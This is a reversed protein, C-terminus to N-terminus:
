EENSEKRENLWKNIVELHEPKINRNSLLKELDFCNEGPGLHIVPSGESHWIEIAKETPMGLIYMSPINEVTLPSVTSCGQKEDFNLALNQGLVTEAESSVGSVTSRKLDDLTPLGETKPMADGPVYDAPYGKRTEQNIIWEQKIAKSARRSVAAKSIGLYDKLKVATIREGEKRDANLKMVAEVLKRVENTIGSSSDIYMDNVLDRVTQYDELTAIIQGQSDVTRRHQRLLAVSKILSMLRAFDRLIRPVSVSKGMTQGLERAFPIMVKIPAKLQLYLQFSELSKDLPKTGETELKAQTELAAKIQEENDSIELTFMRTMLQAGLSRTSTTILVTPGPKDKESVTYDGTIPDRVTVVYHLHHDQLLNRIASAAPNDEGAPLSDAESFIVVRHQLDSNDYILARPSGAEITHYAEPPLLKLVQNVTYSKGASPPGILLLHVMMAGTRMELLRSTAALYTILVPKLDGGYGMDQIAGKVVELPDDAEIIPKAAEYAEALQVEKVRAQLEQGSEARAKLEELWGPISIGQIHAESIDKMGEPAPIYHLGPSSELVRLTFDQADPEQWLYVDLGKLYEGWKVPWISKGPAGIAPIGNYWAAWCDSEGEVVLIWGLKRAIDLKNLGYPLVHDGKRWKFRCDGSLALRYRVALETGDESYYPIKVLPRGTSKFESIGLSKLFDEPIHKAESLIKLEIGTEPTEPHKLPPSVTGVETKLALIGRKSPPTGGNRAKGNIIDGSGKNGNHNDDLCSYALSDYGLWQCVDSYSHRGGQCTVLAKDGADTITLHGQPTKHDPLPCPAVARNGTVKAGPIKDVLDNFDRPRAM